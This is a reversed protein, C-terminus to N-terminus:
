LKMLEIQLIGEFPILRKYEPEEGSSEAFERIMRNDEDIEAHQMELSSGNAFFVKIHEGEM